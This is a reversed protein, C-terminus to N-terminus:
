NKVFLKQAISNNRDYMKVIYTDPILMSVDIAANNGNISGHLLSRGLVDTIDYDYTTNMAGGTSIMLQGQAPNPYVMVEGSGTTPAASVPASQRFAYSPSSGTLKYEVQTGGLGNPYVWAVLNDGPPNNSPASVSSAYNSSTSTMTGHGNGESVWWYDSSVYTSPTGYNVAEMFVVDDPTADETFHAMMYQTGDYSTGSALPGGLAVTPTYNNYLTNSLPPHATLSSVANSNVFYTSAAYLLNDYSRVENYGTGNNYVQAVVKYNSNGSTLQNTGQDDNADIRPITIYSGSAHTFFDLTIASSVTSATYDWEQYYLNLNNASTYTILAMEHGPASSGRYIGAVDPSQGTAVQQVPPFVSSITGGTTNFLDLHAAYVLGTGADDWTVFAYEVNPYAPSVNNYNAEGDIHVTHVSGSSSGAWTYSCIYTPCNIAMGNDGLLFYDVEVGSSTPYAVAITYQMNSHYGGGTTVNGIIVDPTSTPTAYLSTPVNYCGNGAVLDNAIIGGTTGDFYACAIMYTAYSPPDGGFMATNIGTITNADTFWPIPNNSPLVLSQANAADQVDACLILALLTAKITKPIKFKRNM